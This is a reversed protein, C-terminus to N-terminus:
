PAVPPGSPVSPGSTTVFSVATGDAAGFIEYEGPGRSVTCWAARSTDPASGFAGKAPQNGPGVTRQRIEGVSSITASVVHTLGAATCFSRPEDNGGCGALVAVALLVLLIQGTRRTM